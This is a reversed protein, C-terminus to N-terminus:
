KQREKDRRIFAKVSEQMKAFDEESEVPTSFVAQGSDTIRKIVEELNHHAPQITVKKM